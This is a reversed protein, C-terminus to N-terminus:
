CVGESNPAPSQQINTIDVIQYVVETNTKSLVLEKQSIFMEFCWDQKLLWPTIQKDCISYPNCSQSLWM